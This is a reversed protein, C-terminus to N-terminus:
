DRSAHHSISSKPNDDGARAHGPQKHRLRQFAGTDIEGNVFLGAVDATKERRYFPPGPQDAPGDPRDRHPFVLSYDTGSLGVPFAIAANEVAIAATGALGYSLQSRFFLPAALSGPANTGM